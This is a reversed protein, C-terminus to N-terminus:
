EPTDLGVEGPARRAGALALCIVPNGRAGLVRLAAAATAGSTIQDDVLALPVDRPVESLRGAAFLGIVNARRRADDAQRAQPASPRTRRLLDGRAVARTARAVEQAIISTPSFGRERRRVPDDPVPVVIAGAGVWGWRRAGAALRRALPRLLLPQADYKAAHLLTFLAPADGYV